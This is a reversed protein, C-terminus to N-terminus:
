KEESRRCNPFWRFKTNCLFKRFEDLVFNVRNKLQGGRNDALEVLGMYIQNIFLSCLGYMTIKEDPLICFLCVKKTGIEEVSIDTFSIMSSIYSDVFVNLTNLASTFFSARTKSPAIRAPAFASVAPHNKPLSDLYIDMLMSKDNQESCMESLFNYVNTLNQLEPHEINGMVVAMIGTKITSKEGDNWIKEGKSEGVLTTVIDSARNEALPIDGKNVADVVPQLFNYHSSKLPTKFDLTLVKYGLRELEECSYQYLEGNQIM